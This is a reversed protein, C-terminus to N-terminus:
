GLRQRHRCRLRPKANGRRVSDLLVLTQRRLLLLRAFAAPRVRQSVDEFGFDHRQKLRGGANPRDRYEVFQAPAVIIQRATNAARKLSANSCPSRKVALLSLHDEALHLLRAVHPQRVEGFHAIKDDRHGAHRQVMAQIVEAEGTRAKLMRM